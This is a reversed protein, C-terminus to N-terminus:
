LSTFSNQDFTIQDILWSDDLQVMGMQVHFRAREGARINYLRAFQEIQSLLLPRIGNLARSNYLLEDARPGAEAKLQKYTIQDPFRHDAYDTHFSIVAWGSGHYQTKTSRNVRPDPVFDVITFSKFDDALTYSNLLRIHPISDNSCGSLVFILVILSIRM